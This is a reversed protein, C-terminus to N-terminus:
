QSSLDMSIYLEPARYCTRISRWLLKLFKEKYFDLDPFLCACKPDNQERVSIPLSLSLIVYWGEM